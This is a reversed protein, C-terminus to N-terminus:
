AYTKAKRNYQQLFKSLSDIPNTEETLLQKASHYIDDRSYGCRLLEPIFCRIAREIKRKQNNQPVIDHEYKENWSVSIQAIM